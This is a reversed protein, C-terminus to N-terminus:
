GEDFGEDDPNDLVHGGEDLPIELYAKKSEESEFHVELSNEAGCDQVMILPNGDRLTMPDTHSIINM